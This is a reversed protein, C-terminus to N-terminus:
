DDADRDTPRPAAARLEEFSAYRPRTIVPEPDPEAEAAPEFLHDDAAPEAEPEPALAPAYAPGAAPEPARWPAPAPAALTEEPEPNGAWLGALWGAGAFAVLTGLVILVPYHALIQLLLTVAAAIGVGSWAAWRAHAIKAGIFGGALSSLFYAAITGLVGITPMRAMIQGAQVPDSPDLGAPAFAYDALLWKLFGALALAIAVGFLIGIVKRTL